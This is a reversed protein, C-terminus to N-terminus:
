SQWGTTKQPCCSHLFRVKSLSDVPLGTRWFFAKAEEGALRGDGDWDAEAFWRDVVAEPVGDVAPGTNGRAM